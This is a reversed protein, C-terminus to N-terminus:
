NKIKMELLFRTLNFRKILIDYVFLISTTSTLTIFIFKLITGTQWQVVYFSIAMVFTMHLIYIPYCAQNLYDIFPSSWNLYKRAYNLILSVWCWTNLSLLLQILVSNLSIGGFALSFESTRSYLYFLMGILGLSLAFSNNKQIVLEFQRNLLFLYGLTFFLIYYVPNFYVLGTMRALTLPIVYLFIARPQHSLYNALKDIVQESNSTKLYHFLPLTILSFCFLYLIFWLHSPTFTGTFGDIHEYDIKFFSPYYQYYSLHVDQHHSLFAFYGIPPILVFIAFILPVFLRKFRELCYQKKSRLDLSYKAAAGAVFFFLPMFWMDIFRSFLELESNNIKNQIYFTYSDFIRATHYPILLLTALIRLWDLDYRRVYNDKLASM